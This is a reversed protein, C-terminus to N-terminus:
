HKPMGLVIGFTGDFYLPDKLKNQPVTPATLFRLGFQLGIGQIIPVRLGGEAEVFFDRGAWRLLGAGVSVYRQIGGPAGAFRTAGLSGENAYPASCRGDTVECVETLGRRGFTGYVGWDAWNLQARLGGMANVSYESIGGSSGVGVGGRPVLEFRQGWLPTCLLLSALAVFASASRRQLSALHLHM